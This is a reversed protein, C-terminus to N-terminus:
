EDMFVSERKKLSKFYDQKIHLKMSDLLEVKLYDSNLGNKGCFILKIVNLNFNGFLM